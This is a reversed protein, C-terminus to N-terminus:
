CCRNRLKSNPSECCASHAKTRSCFRGRRSDMRVSDGRNLLTRGDESLMGSMM